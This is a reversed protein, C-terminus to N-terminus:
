QKKSFYAAGSKFAFASMDSFFTHEMKRFVAKVAEEKTSTSDQIKRLNAYYEKFEEPANEYLPFSKNRAEDSQKAYFEPHLANFVMAMQGVNFERKYYSELDVAHEHFANISKDFVIKLGHKKELRYGLETDDFCAKIFKESFREGTKLLYSRKLSINSTYFLSHNVAQGDKLKFFAFQQGSVETVYHMISNVEIGPPWGIYGLIAMNDNAYRSHACLHRELLDVSPMIDDGTFLLIENGARDMAANRAIGPGSHEQRVITLKFPYKEPKVDREVPDSSGDDVVIVEFQETPLTQRKYLELCRLLLNTRNYSPIMVSITKFEPM